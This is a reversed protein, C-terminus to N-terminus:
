RLKYDFKCVGPYAAEIAKAFKDYSKRSGRQAFLIGEPTKVDSHNTNGMVVNSMLCMDILVHRHPDDEKLNVLTFFVKQENKAM